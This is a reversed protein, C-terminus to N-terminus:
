RDLEAVADGPDNMVQCPFDRSLDVDGRRLLHTLSKDTLFVDCYGLAAIAHQFDHLTNGDLERNERRIAAFCASQIHATRLVKRLDPKRAQECLIGLFRKDVEGYFARRVQQHRPSPKERPKRLLEAAVFALDGLVEELETLYLARFSKANPDNAENSANIRAAIAEFERKEDLDPDAPTNEVITEVVEVMPLSWMHDFQVKQITLEEADDFGTEFPLHVGFANALKTWVNCEQRYPNSYGLYPYTWYRIELEMRDQLPILCAGESLEDVLEATAKRTNPDTQRLIEHLTSTSIPCIVERASTRARLLSLLSVLASDSERGLYLDRLLIWFRTDLYVRKREVVTCGWARHQEGLYEDITVSPRARHFVFREKLQQKNM